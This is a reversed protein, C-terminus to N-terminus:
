LKKPKPMYLSHFFISNVFFLTICSNPFSALLYIFFYIALHLSPPHFVPQHFITSPSPIYCLPISSVGSFLLSNNCEACAL